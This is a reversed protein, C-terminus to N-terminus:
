GNVHSVPPDSAADAGTLLAAGFVADEDKSVSNLHNYLKRCFSQTRLSWKLYQLCPGNIKEGDVETIAQAIQQESVMMSFLTTNIEGGDMPACRGAAALYDEGTLSRMKVSRIDVNPFASLDMFKENTATAV